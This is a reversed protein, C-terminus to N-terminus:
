RQARRSRPGPAARGLAAPRVRRAAARGCARRRGRRVVRRRGTRPVGRRVRPEGGQGACRGAAAVSGAAAPLAPRGAAGGSGGGGLQRRARQRRPEASRGRLARRVEFSDAWRVRLAALAAAAVGVGVAAESAAGEARVEAVTAALELALIEWEPAASSLPSCQYQVVHVAPFRRWFACPSAPGRLDSKVVQMTLTKSSGPKGVVLVLLKNLICVVVVFLNETLAANRAIGDELVLNAAFRAQLQELVAAFAGGEGLLSSKLDVWGLAHLDRAWHERVCAQMARWFAARAAGDGLRFFYVHGLALACATATPSLGVAPSPRARGGGGGGRSRSEAAAAQSAAALTQVRRAARQAEEASAGLTPLPPSSDAQGPFFAATAAASTADHDKRVSEARAHVKEGIKPFHEKFWTLLALFRKVDRLSVASADGEHARVARHAAAVLAAVLCHEVRAVDPLAQAAMRVVYNHERADTLAGFDFQVDQLTRPVPHVRYMLRAM